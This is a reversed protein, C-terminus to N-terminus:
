SVMISTVSKQALLASKIDVKAVDKYDNLAEDWLRAVDSQPEGTEM